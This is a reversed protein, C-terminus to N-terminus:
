KKLWELPPVINKRCLPCSIKNTRLWSKFCLEHYMHRCKKLVILENEKCFDELCISCADLTVPTRALKKLYLYFNLDTMNEDPMRKISLM